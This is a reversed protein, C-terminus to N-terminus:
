RRKNDSAACNKEVPNVSHAPASPPNSPEDDTPTNTPRAQTKRGDNVSYSAM